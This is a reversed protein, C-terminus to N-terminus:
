AMSCLSSLPWFNSSDLTPMPLIFAHGEVKRRWIQYAITNFISRAIVFCAIMIVVKNVIKQLTPAKIRPNKTANIRIKCEEGTYVVLGFVEQTNRIISGRYIVENNTLPLIKGAISFKGEFKYLDLNPDEVVFHAEASCLQNIHGCIRTLPPSAQKSKLNTEGDLAMTEIYAIGNTGDVNLLVIDAPVTQDRQIRLVDGVKIHQWKSEAWHGASESSTGGAPTVARPARAVSGIRNNEEKDAQSRRIDDHAEKSMSIGVFLLLPVLTTYRGTTSLSPM